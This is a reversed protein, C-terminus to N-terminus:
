DTLFDFSIFEERKELGGSKRAGWGKGSSPFTEGGCRDRLSVSGYWPVWLCVSSGSTPVYEGPVHPRSLDCTVVRGKRPTGYTGPLFSVNLGNVTVM